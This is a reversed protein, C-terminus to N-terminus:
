AGAAQGLSLAEPVGITAGPVLRGHNFIHRVPQGPDQIRNVLRRFAAVGMERLPSQVTTVPPLGDPVPTGDFGTLSLDEPVRLGRQRLGRLLMYAQHDAGCVFATVRRKDKIRIVEGVLDDNSVIKGALVNFVAEPIFACRHKAVAQVFGAFRSFVWSPQPGRYIRNVFGIREHGAAVLRQVLMDMGHAPDTDICDIAHTGYQNVLSVLPFESALREVLAQPHQYLLVVGRWTRNRWGAPLMEAASFLDVVDPRIFHTDLMTDRAAAADSIGSLMEQGAEPHPSHQFSATGVLVGITVVKQVSPRRGRGHERMRYGLEDAM